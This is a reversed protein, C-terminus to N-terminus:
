PVYFKRCTKKSTWQYRPEVHIGSSIKAGVNAVDKAKCELHTHYFVNRHAKRFFGTLYPDHPNFFVISKSTGM